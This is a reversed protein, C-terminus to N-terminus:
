RFQEGGSTFGVGMLFVLAVLILEEEVALPRVPELRPENGPFKGDIRLFEKGTMIGAYHAPSKMILTGVGLTALKM